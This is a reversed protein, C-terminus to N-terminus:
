NHLKANMSGAGPLIFAKASVMLDIGIGPIGTNQQPCHHMMSPQCIISSTDGSNQKDRNLSSIPNRDIKNLPMDQVDQNAPADSEAQFKVAARVSSSWCFSNITM